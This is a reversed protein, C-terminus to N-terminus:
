AWSLVLLDLRRSNGLVLVQKQANDKRQDALRLKETLEKIEKRLESNKESAEVFESKLMNIQESSECSASNVQHFSLSFLFMFRINTGLSIVM